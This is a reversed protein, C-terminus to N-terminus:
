VCHCLGLNYFCAQVREKQFTYLADGQVKVFFSSMTWDSYNLISSQKRTFYLLAHGEIKDATKAM